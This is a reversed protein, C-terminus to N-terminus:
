VCGYPVYDLDTPFELVLANQSGPCSQILRRIRSPLSQDVYILRPSVSAVARLCGWGHTIYTSWGNRELKDVLATPYASERTALMVLVLGRQRPQGIRDSYEQRVSTMHSSQRLKPGDMSM